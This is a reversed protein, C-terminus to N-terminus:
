PEVGTVIGNITRVKSVSGSYTLGVGAHGDGDDVHIKKGFLEIGRNGDNVSIRSKKGVSLSAYPSEGYELDLVARKAVDDLNTLIQVSKIGISSSDRFLIIPHQGRESEDGIGIETWYVQDATGDYDLYLRRGIKADKDTQITGHFLGDGLEFAGTDLNFYFNGSKGSLIGTIIYDAIISRYDICTGWIWDTNDATRQKSIQIGQTGICLAGYTSSGVMLDEYLIGRVDARKSVNKQARLSAEAMDIVGKITSAIVTNSGSDVVKKLTSTTISSQSFFNAVSSGLILRTIEDEVLDYELETVVQKTTIRADLNRVDVRDGLWVYELEQFDRYEDYGRLDVFDVDYSYKTRYNGSEFDQTAAATLATEMEEQTKCVTLAPDTYDDESADEWWKIYDYQVFRKHPIRSPRGGDKVERQSTWGNFGTPIIVNCFDSDDEAISFGSINKTASIMFGRDSGAWRNMHLTYNDFIAEGGWRNVFSNEDSSNLAEMFNKNIYYATSIKSIDSKVKYKASAQCGQLMTELAAQGNKNTPRCDRMVLEKQADWLFIPYATFDIADFDTAKPDTVVWLQNKFKPLDFKIVSDNQIFPAAEDTPVQFSASWAGNLILHLSASIPHLAFDGNKSYNTNEIKYLHIM